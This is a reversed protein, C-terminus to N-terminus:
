VTLDNENKLEVAEAFANKVVRLLIGIFAAGLLGFHFVPHLTLGAAGFIGAACFCLWSLIRLLRVNAPIFVDGRAIHNLLFHLAVLALLGSVAAACLLVLSVALMKPTDFVGGLHRLFIPTEFSIIITGALILAFFVFVCGRSLLLSMKKTWM